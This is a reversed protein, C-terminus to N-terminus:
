KRMSDKIKEEVSRIARSTKDIEERLRSVDSLIEAVQLRNGKGNDGGPVVQLKESSPRQLLEIRQEVTEVKKQNDAAQEEKQQSHALFM